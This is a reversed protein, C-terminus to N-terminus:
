FFSVTQGYAFICCNYGVVAKDLNPKIAQTFIQDQQADEGFIIDYNFERENDCLLRTKSLLKVCKQKSKLIELNILPRIRVFVQINSPLSATSSVRYIASKDKSRSLLL